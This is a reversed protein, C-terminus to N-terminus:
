WSEPASTLARAVCLSSVVRRYPSATLKMRQNTTNQEGGSIEETKGEWSLVAGDTYAHAEAEFSSELKGNRKEQSM